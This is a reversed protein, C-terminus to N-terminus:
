NVAVPFIQPQIPQVTLGLKLLCLRRIFEIGKNRISTRIAIHTAGNKDTWLQEFNRFYGRDVYEQMPLNNPMLVKSERLIKALGNRGLKKGRGLDIDLVRAVKGFDIADKCDMLTEYVEVKPQMVLNEAVLQENQKVQVVLAELAELYTRPLQPQMAYAGTKRISPIVEGVVWAKFRLADPKRSSMIVSYLHRESIFTATRPGGSTTITELRVGNTTSEISDLPTEEEKLKNAVDSPNGVGLARCVDTLAFFPEGDILMARVDGFNEQTFVTLSQARTTLQEPM